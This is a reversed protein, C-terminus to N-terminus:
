SGPQVHTRVQVTSGARFSGVDPVAVTVPGRPSEVSIRGAPDIGTIRGTVVAHVGPEAAVLAAPQPERIAAQTRPDALPVMNVPQVSIRVKAPTGPQLAEGGPTATWVFLTGRPTEISVLGKPDVVGIRGTTEMTVPAGAPIAAMPVAGTVVHAIDAPPAPTGRVTAIEHLRLGRLQDPEVKLRMPQANVLLTVTSDREDWNWVEGRYVSAGPQQVPATVCGGLVIAVVALQVARRM